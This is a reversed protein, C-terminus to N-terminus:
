IIVMTTSMIIIKLSLIEETKKFLKEKIEKLNESMNM